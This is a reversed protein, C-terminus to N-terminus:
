PTEREGLPRDPQTTKKPFGATTPPHRDPESPRRQEGAALVSGTTNRATSACSCAPPQRHRRSHRRWRCGASGDNPRDSPPCAPRDTSRPAIVVGDPTEQSLFPERLPEQVPTTASLGTRRSRPTTRRM